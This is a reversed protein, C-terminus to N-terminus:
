REYTGVLEARALIHGKMARELDARRARGGLDPLVTDLAYLVHSYRHRGIPPAPGRYGPDGWDNRGERAGPITAVAVGAPLSTTGDPIGYLVWHAWVMRPAAPDPADPDVVVLAFSKTGAPAGSWSLPPSLDRGDTTHEEPIVDGPGFASSRLILVM